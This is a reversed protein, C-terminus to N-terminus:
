KNRANTRAEEEEGMVINHTIVLNRRQIVPMDMLENWGINLYKHARYLEINLNQEYEDYMLSFLRESLYFPKLHAM